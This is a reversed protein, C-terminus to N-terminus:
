LSLGSDAHCSINCCASLCSTPPALVVVVEQDWPLWSSVRRCVALLSDNWVPRLRLMPTRLAWRCLSVSGGVLGRMRITGSRTPWVCEFWWLTGGGGDKICSSSSTLCYFLIVVLM